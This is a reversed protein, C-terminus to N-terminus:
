LEGSCPPDGQKPPRITTEHRRDHGAGRPQHTFRENARYLSLLPPALASAPERLWIVWETTASDHRGDGTYSHRPLTLVRSPPHAELWPGRPHHHATPERFSLRLLMAVGIRAHAVAQRVIDRCTPMRYPPNTVVWDPCSRVYLEPEAADLGWSQSRDNSIVSLGAARLVRTIAGDGACPELVLGTIPQHALLARTQWAPTYYADDDRRAAM